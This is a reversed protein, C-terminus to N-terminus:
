FNKIVADSLHDAAKVRVGAEGNAELIDGVETFTDYANNDARKNFLKKNDDIELWKIGTQFDAMEAGDIGFAAGMIEFSEDSNESWYDMAAFWGESVAELAAPNNSALDEDAFIFDVVLGPTDASSAIISSGMVKDASISLYPEYTAAVDLQGAVFANGADASTVDKFDVDALTMGEQALLYQLVFYPPLGPEGGVVKGKL